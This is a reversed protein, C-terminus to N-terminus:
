VARAQGTGVEAETEGLRALDFEWTTGAGERSHLRLRSEHREVIEKVIALGLGSGEREAGARKVQYFPECIRPQDAEPIGVGNDRVGFTVKGDDAHAYLHVEGGHPTFKAANELLNQFVQALREADGRVRVESSPLEMRLSVKAAELRPRGIDAASRLLEGVNLARAQLGRNKIRALDLLNEVMSSLRRAQRDIVQLFQTRVADPMQADDLMTQVHSRIIALPSRFDHSVTSILEDKRKDQARLEENLTTLEATRDRVREELTRNLEEVEDFARANALTPAAQGAVARLFVLDAASFRTGDVPSGLVLAGLLRGSARLPVVAEVGAPLPLVRIGGENTDDEHAATEDDRLLLAADRWSAVEVMPLVAGQVAHLAGEGRSDLLVVSCAGPQVTRTLTEAIRQLARELSLETSLQGALGALADQAEYRRGEMLRDVTHKFRDRIPIAVALLMAAMAVAVAPSAAQDDIIAYAVSLAGAYGATALGTLILDAFLRRLTLDAEFLDQRLIAYAVSVPMLLVAVNPVATLEWVEFVLGMLFNLAPIGMALPWTLVIVGARARALPGEPRRWADWMVAFFGGAGLLLFVYSGVGLAAYLQVPGGQFTILSASLVVGMLLPIGWVLFRRKRRALRPSLTVAFAMAAAPVFPASLHFLNPFRRFFTGDVGGAMMLGNAMCCLSFTVARSNFRLLLVGMGILLIVVALITQNTHWRFFDTVSFRELTVAVDKTKGEPDVMSLMVRGPPPTANLIATLTQADRVPLGDVATIRDWLAVQPTRSEEPAFLVPNVFLTETYGFRPFPRGIFAVADLVGVTSIGLAVVFAALLAPRLARPRTLTTPPLPRPSVM